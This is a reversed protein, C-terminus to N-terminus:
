TIHKDLDESRGVTGEGPGRSELTFTIQGASGSSKAKVTALSFDSIVQLPVLTPSSTPKGVTAMSALSPAISCQM